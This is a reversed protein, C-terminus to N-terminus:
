EGRQDFEEKGGLQISLSLESDAEEINSGCKLKKMTDTFLNDDRLRQDRIYEEVKDLCLKAEMNKHCAQYVHSLVFLCERSVVIM